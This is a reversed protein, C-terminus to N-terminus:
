RQGKIKKGQIRLDPSSLEQVRLSSSGLYTNVFKECHGVLPDGGHVRCCRIALEPLKSLKYNKDQELSISYDSSDFGSGLRVVPSGNIAIEPGGSKRCTINVSTDPSEVLMESLGHIASLSPSNEYQAICKKTIDDNKNFYYVEKCRALPSEQAVTSALWLSAAMSVEVCDSSVLSNCTLSAHSYPFILSYLFAGRSRGELGKSQVVRRLYSMRESIKPYRDFELAYGNVKFQAAWYDAVEFTLIRGEAFKLLIQKEKSSVEPMEVWLKKDILSQLYQIEDSTLRAQVRKLADQPSKVKNLSQALDAVIKKDIEIQSAKVSHGFSLGLILGLFYKLLNM